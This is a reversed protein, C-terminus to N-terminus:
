APEVPVPRAEGPGRPLTEAGPGGPYAHLSVQGRRSRRRPTHLFCSIVTLGFLALAVWLYSGPMNYAVDYAQGLGWAVQPIVKDSVVPVDPLDQKAEQVINYELLKGPSEPLAMEHSPAGADVPPAAGAPAVGGPPNLGPGRDGGMPGRQGGGQRAGKKEDPRDEAKEDKKDDQDALALLRGLDAPAAAQKEPNDPNVKKEGEGEKKKDGGPVDLDPTVLKHPVTGTLPHHTYYYLVGPVLLTLLLLLWTLRQTVGKMRLPISGVPRGHQLVEVCPAPLRGRALPTVYFNAREGVRNVDLTHEAPVVHAGPILPRVVVPDPAAGPSATGRLVEVVLPYVRQPKMRYYYRVRLDAKAAPLTHGRHAADPHPAPAHGRAPVPQKM